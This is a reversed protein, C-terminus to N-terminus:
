EEVSLVEGEIVNDESGGIRKPAPGTSVRYRMLQQAIAHKTAPDKVENNIVDIVYDRFNSVNEISIVYRRGEQIGHLREVVKSLNVIMRDASDLQDRDLMIQIMGRQTLIEQELEFVQHDNAMEEMKARLEPHQTKIKSFGGHKWQKALPSQNRGGHMKCRGEGLHDTGKGAKNTCPKGMRNRAGCIPYSISAQTEELLKEWYAKEEGRLEVTKTM